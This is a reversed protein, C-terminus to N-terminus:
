KNKGVLIGGKINEVDKGQYKAESVLIIRPKGKKDLVEIIGGDPKIRSEQVFLTQGLRSDISCLKLNIEKKSIGIRYNFKYKPYKKVLASFVDKSVASVSSDHAQASKGFIGTAGGSKIHQTTLRGTQGKKM